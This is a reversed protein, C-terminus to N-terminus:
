IAGSTRTSSGANGTERSATTASAAARPWSLAHTDPSPRSPQGCPLPFPDPRPSGWNSRPPVHQRGPAGRPPAWGAQQSSLAGGVSGRRPAEQSAAGVTEGVDTGERERGQLPQGEGTDPESSKKSFVKAKSRCRPKSGAWPSSARASTGPNGTDM